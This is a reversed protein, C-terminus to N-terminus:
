RAEKCNDFHWQKMQPRGGSKGCHPCTIIPKAKGKLAKSIKDKREETHPELTLGTNWAPKGRRAEWLLHMRDYNDPRKCGEWPVEKDKWYRANNKSIKEIQESGHKYNTPNGYNGNKKGLFVKSNFSQDNMSDNIMEELPPAIYNTNSQAVCEEETPIYINM